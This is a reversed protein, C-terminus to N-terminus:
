GGDSDRGGPGNAQGFDADRAESEERTVQNSALLNALNAAAAQNGCDLELAREFSNRAAAVRGESWYALGLHNQIESAQPVLAAARELEEIALPGDHHALADNGASYYRAGRLTRMPASECGTQVAVSGVSMAVMGAVCFGKVTVTM